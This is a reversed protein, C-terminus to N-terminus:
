RGITVVRSQDVGPSTLRVYYVGPAVRGAAGRGNWTADYTGAPVDRDFLTALARGATDYAVVRAHGPRALAFRATLGDHSPNPWPAAVFGSRTGGQPTVGAPDSVIIWGVMDLDSHFTCQFPYTGAAPFTVTFTQSSSNLPASWLSGPAPDNVDGNTTNHIGTVWKFLISQGVNIYATDIQTGLPNHDTDFYYNGVLFTDAAALTGTASGGHAPRAAFMRDSMHQMAADDMAPGRAAAAPRVLITRATFAAAVLLLVAATTPLWRSTPRSGGAPFDNV